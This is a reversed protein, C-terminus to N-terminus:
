LTIVWAIGQTLKELSKCLDLHQNFTDLPKFSVLGLTRKFRSIFFDPAITKYWWSNLCAHKSVFDPICFTWWSQCGRWNGQRVKWGHFSSTNVTGWRYSHHPPAWCWIFATQRRTEPTVTVAISFIARLWNRDYKATAMRRDDLPLVRQNRMIFDCKEKETLIRAFPNHSISFSSM